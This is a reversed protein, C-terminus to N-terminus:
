PGLGLVNLLATRVEIWRSEPLRAILAGLLAREVTRVWEPKLVCASPLGETTSLRVEWPLGRVFTSLPIVPVQALSPLIDPRGLILV